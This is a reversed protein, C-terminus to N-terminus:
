TRMDILFCSTSIKFTQIINTKIKIKVHVNLTFPSGTQKSLTHDQQRHKEVEGWNIIVQDILDHM